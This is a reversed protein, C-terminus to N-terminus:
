KPKSALGRWQDDHHLKGGIVSGYVAARQPSYWHGRWSNGDFRSWWTRGNYSLIEYVGPRFPSVKAPFWPTTEAGEAGARLPKM